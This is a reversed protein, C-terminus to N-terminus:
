LAIADAMTPWDSTKNGDFVILEFELVGDKYVKHM